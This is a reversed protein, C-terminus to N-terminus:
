GLRYALEATSGYVGGDELITLAVCPQAMANKAGTLWTFVALDHTSEKSATGLMREFCTKAPRMEPKSTIKYTNQNM